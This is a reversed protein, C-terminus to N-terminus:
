YYYTYITFILSLALSVLKVIVPPSIETSDAEMRRGEEDEMVMSTPPDTVRM